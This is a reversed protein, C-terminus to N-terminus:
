IMEEEVKEAEEWRRWRKRGSEATHGPIAEKNTMCERSNM